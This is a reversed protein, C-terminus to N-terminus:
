RTNRTLLRSVARTGVSLVLVAALLVFATGWATQQTDKFPQTADSYILTTLAATPAAVTFLLPATEGLARGLALLNGSIVGPMAGRLVISRAVRSRRAGLAVGAEWLDMAVTRLAEENARIMIPVMLVALAFSAAVDSFHHMTRVVLAYAFIGIVISPVGTLVGASFRIGAALRGKNEFLFLATLLGVPVAMLLGLGAIRATGTIATSIGGGPIGEPTPAHTLFALSLAHVGRAVTYGVLAVLPVLGVVVATACLVEAVLGDIRRSRRKLTIGTPRYDVLTTSEATGAPGRPLPGNGAGGSKRHLVAQGGANVALTLLFLVAGLAIVSSTGLGPTAEAFQNVIASGLTAGPAILSHPIAPRNGIIMAVAISEGLVRGTALTLAAAIGGRAAPLVASRVVQWRTAGLAMAAERDALPVGQLSTRTLNVISPLAMVALVVSALMISPGYAVGHFLHGLVPLGRLWPEVDKAFSPSVVLLAWLGIVISPVAALLDIATALPAAIWAPAQEALFIAFGLGVPIVIIMAVLTTIATGVLLIGAGYQNNAPDWTGSWVFSLGSHAFAQSSQIGVAAVLAIILAIFV